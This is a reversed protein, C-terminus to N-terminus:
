VKREMFRNREEYKILGDEVYYYYEEVNLVKEILDLVYSVTMHNLVSEMIEDGGIRSILANDPLCNKIIKLGNKM